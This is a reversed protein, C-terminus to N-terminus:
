HVARVRGYGRSSLRATEEERRRQEEARWQEEEAKKRAIEELMVKLWESIMGEAIV